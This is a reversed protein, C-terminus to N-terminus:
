NRVARDLGYAVPIALSYNQMTPFNVSSSFPMKIFARYNEGTIERLNLRTIIWNNDGLIRVKTEKSKYFDLHLTNTEYYTRNNLFVKLNASIRLIDDYIRSRNEMLFDRIVVYLDTADGALNRISNSENALKWNEELNKTLFILIDNKQLVKNEVCTKRLNKPM